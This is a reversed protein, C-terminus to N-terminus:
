ISIRGEKEKQTPSKLPPLSPPSNHTLRLCGVVVGHNKQHNITPPEIVCGRAEIGDLVFM